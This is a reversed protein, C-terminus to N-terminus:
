RWWVISGISETWYGEIKNKYYLVYNMAFFIFRSSCQELVSFLGTLTYCIEILLLSSVRRKLLQFDYFFGPISVHFDTVCSVVFISYLISTSFLEQLLLKYLINMFILLFVQTVFCCTPPLCATVLNSPVIVMFFVIFSPFPLFLTAHHLFYFVVLLPYPGVSIFYILCWKIWLLIHQVWRGSMHHVNWVPDSLARTYLM